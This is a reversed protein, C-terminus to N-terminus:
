FSTTNIFNEGRLGIKKKERCLDSSHIDITVEFTSELCHFSISFETRVEARPHFLPAHLQPWRSDALYHCLVVATCEIVDVFTYTIM